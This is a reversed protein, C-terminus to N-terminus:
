CTARNSRMQVRSIDERLCPLQAMEDNAGDFKVNARKQLAKDGFKRAYDATLHLESAVRSASGWGVRSLLCLLAGLHHRDLACPM